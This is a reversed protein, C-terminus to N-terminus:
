GARPHQEAFAKLHANRRLLFRRMYAALFLKDALVGLLGLPSVFTLTDRMRTRGGPEEAFEHLHHLSHFAGSVMEDAFRHPPEFLVIRSTLRQRVGFHTAEFTVTDGGAVKGFTVGSVAKEKTAVNGACHLDIDRALDFCREVPVAIITELVITPM